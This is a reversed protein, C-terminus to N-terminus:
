SGGPIFTATPAVTYTTTVIDGRSVPILGAILGTSISAGQRALAIASVTGGTIAIAGSFPATYGWPSAGPTLALFPQAAAPADPLDSLQALMLALSIDPYDTAAPFTQDLQMSVADLDRRTAAADAQLMEADGQEYAFAEDGPMGDPGIINTYLNYLFLWWNKDMILMGAQDMKGLPQTPPLMQQPLLSM